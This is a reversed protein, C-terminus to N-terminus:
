YGGTLTITMTHIDVKMTLSRRTFAAIGDYMAEIDEYKIVTTM